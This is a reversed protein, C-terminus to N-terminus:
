KWYQCRNYIYDGGLGSFCILQTNNKRAIEMLPRLLHEANTQAFPNDMIIVKGEESTKFIDSEEKRM